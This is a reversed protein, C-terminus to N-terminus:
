SAAVKVVIKHLEGVGVLPAHADEPFFIAFSGPGVATWAEPADLFFGVDKEASYEGEPRTCAGLSRWGIEDTGSLVVQIDIYKRHAELKAQDRSRAPDKCALAYVRDGDVEHRGLPLGALDSQRLFAVAKVFGPCLSTYREILELRDLIM